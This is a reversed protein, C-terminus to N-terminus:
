GRVPAWLREQTPGPARQALGRLWVELDALPMPRGLFHGQAEDCGWRALAGLDRRRSARPSSACGSGARSTSSRRARDGRRARRRGAAHRVLPRDQARRRAAAQPPRAVLPRRRLRRARDRRRDARLGILVEVTRELDAMVVDESVELRLHEPEFRHLRLLREIEAPLGLDLLDAPGLNVAVGLDLGDRRRQGIEELARDLVFATLARTLGSQEVLPLFHGPGLLGRQPHQWRM